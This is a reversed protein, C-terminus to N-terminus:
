HPTLFRRYCPLRILASRRNAQLYTELVRVMQRAARWDFRQGVNSENVLKVRCVATNTQKLANRTQRTSPRQPFLRKNTNTSRADDSIRASRVIHASSGFSLQKDPRRRTFGRFVVFGLVAQHMLQGLRRFILVCVCVSCLKYAKYITM